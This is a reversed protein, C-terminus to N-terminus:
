ESVTQGVVYVEAICINSNARSDPLVLKLYRSKIKLSAVDFSLLDDSWDELQTEPYEGRGLETWNTNETGTYTYDDPWFTPNTSTWSVPGLWEFDSQNAFEEKEVPMAFAIVTKTQVNNLRRYIDVRAIDVPEGFDLVLTHPLPDRTHTPYNPNDGATYTSYRSGWFNAMNGDYVYPPPGEIATTLSPMGQWSNCYVFDWGTRSAWFLSVDLTHKKTSTVGNNNTVTLTVEYTGTENFTFVPNRSTVTTAGFTWEWAVIFGGTLDVSMDSFQVPDGAIVTEFPTWAFAAMITVGGGGTAPRGSDDGDIYWNGNAGITIQSGLASVGTDDGDIYWNGEDGITIISGITGQPGQPGQPGEPGEPGEPGQEGKAPIETDEGDIWWNGNPGIYVNTGPAGPEGQTACAPKETDVNDIWWNCNPGITVVSGAKGDQGAPGEKGDDGGKCSTITTATFVVACFCYLISRVNKM